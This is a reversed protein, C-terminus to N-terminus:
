TADSTQRACIMSRLTTSSRHSRIMFTICCASGIRTLGQSAFGRRTITWRGGTFSCCTGWVISHLVVRARGAPSDQRLHTTPWDAADAREVTVPHRAAVGLAAQLNALREPQDPWVYALLRDREAPDSLNLPNADCGARAAIALNSTAPPYLQALSAHRGSRALAHLAGTLRLAASDVQAIPDGPWSLVRRAISGDPRLQKALLRCLLATFPSGLRDCWGARDSFAARVRSDADM